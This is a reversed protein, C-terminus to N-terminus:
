RVAGDPTYQRLHEAASQLLGRLRRVEAVLALRDCIVQAWHATPDTEITLRANARAEIATLDEDTVIGGGACRCRVRHSRM